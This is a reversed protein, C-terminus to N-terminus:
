REAGSRQKEDEELVPSLSVYQSVNHPDGWTQ